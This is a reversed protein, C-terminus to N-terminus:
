RIKTYSSVIGLYQETVQVCLSYKKAQDDRRVTAIDNFIKIDIVYITYRLGQLIKTSVQMTFIDIRSDHFIYVTYLNLVRKAVLTFYSYINLFIYIEHFRVQKLCM